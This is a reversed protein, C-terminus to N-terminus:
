KPAVSPIGEEVDVSVSDGSVSSASSGPRKVTAVLIPMVAKNTPTKSPNQNQQASLPLSAPPTQALTPSQGRVNISFSPTGTATSGPSGRNVSAVVKRIKADLDDLVLQKLIGKKLNLTM